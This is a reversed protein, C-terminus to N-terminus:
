SESTVLVVFIAAAILDATTGPNRRHGDARLFTDLAQWRVGREGTELWEDLAWAALQQAESAIQRGSKRVILGDLHSALWRLQTETIARLVDSGRSLSNRLWRAMSQCVNDFGNVYQAAVADTHAVQRMADILNEPPSSHVDHQRQKGLGGPNAIRIAQYVDFADATTLTNLVNKATSQLDTITPRVPYRTRWVDVAKALPALLLLTGLNTNIGVQVRTTEVSQLVLQGVSLGETRNFIPSIAHSSVLFDSYEMDSFSVGPMVNGAKCASAELCCALSAAMGISLHSSMWARQRAESM